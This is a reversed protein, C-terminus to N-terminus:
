SCLVKFIIMKGYQRPCILIGNKNLLKGALKEIKELQEDSSGATIIIKDYRDEHEFFSEVKFKIRMKRKIHKELNKVNNRAEEVLGSIRDISVVKNPYVLFSILCANWGSGTGVELVTDGRKLEALMLMRAVTSPQSITQGEGIPLASDIYADEPNLVFFKRDVVTMAELIKELFKNEENTKIFQSNYNYVSYLMDRMKGAKEIIRRIEM